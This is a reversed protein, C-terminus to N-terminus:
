IAYVIKGALSFCQLSGEAASAPNNGNSCCYELTTTTSTVGVRCLRSNSCGGAAEWDGEELQCETNGQRTDRQWWHITDSSPTECFLPHTTVNYAVWSTSSSSCGAATIFLGNEVYYLSGFVHAHLNSSGQWIGVVNGELGSSFTARLVLLSLVLTNVAMLVIM